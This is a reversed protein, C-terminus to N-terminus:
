IFEFGKKSDALLRNKNKNKKKESLGTQFILKIIEM